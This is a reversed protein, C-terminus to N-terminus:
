AALLERLAVVVEAPREQPRFHGCDPVHTRLGPAWAGWVAAPDLATRRGSAAM